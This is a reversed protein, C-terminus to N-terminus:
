ENTGRKLEEEVQEKKLFDYASGTLATFLLLLGTVAFGIAGGFHIAVFMIGVLGGLMLLVALAMVMAKLLM